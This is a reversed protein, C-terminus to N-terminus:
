AGEMAFASVTSILNVAYPLYKEALTPFGAWKMLKDM